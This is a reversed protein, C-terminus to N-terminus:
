FACMSCLLPMCVALIPNQTRHAKQPQAPATAASASALSVFETKMRDVEREHTVDRLVFLRGLFGDADHIPATYLQLERAQPWQQVVLRTDTHTTDQSSALTSHYLVGGDAFVQDFLTRTDELHQGSLRTTPVGLLAEFRRNVDLIRQDPSVFVLAEDVGDTIARIRAQSAREAQLSKQLARKSKELQDAIVAIAVSVVLFLGVRLWDEATIGVHYIPSVMFALNALVGVAATLLGPGLGGRWASVLVAVYFIHFVGREFAPLFLLSLLVAVLSALVAVSYGQLTEFGQSGRQALPPFASRVVRWLLWALTFSIMKDLPDSIFGEITAVQLLNAGTASLQATLYDLGGGTLDDFLYATIPASIVAAGIGVLLGSLLVTRLRQFAGRVAAFGAAWGVFAATIAYPLLILNGGLTGWILNSLAGTAAGALPGLLAGVLITGISDLYVPWGLVDRVLRGVAINLVIAAVILLLSRMVYNPPKM